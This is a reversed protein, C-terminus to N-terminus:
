CQKACDLVVPTPPPIWTLTSRPQTQSDLGVSWEASGREADILQRVEHRLEMSFPLWSIHCFHNKEM